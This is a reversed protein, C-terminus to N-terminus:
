LLQKKIWESLGGTEQYIEKCKEDTLYSNIMTKDKPYRTEVNLAELESMFDKQVDTMQSTLGSEDSLRTLKHIMPPIKTDRKCVYYAKLMKEIVQHCMFGVYLHYKNDLM